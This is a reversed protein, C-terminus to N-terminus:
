RTAILSPIKPILVQKLLSLPDSGRLTFFNRSVWNLTATFSAAIRSERGTM